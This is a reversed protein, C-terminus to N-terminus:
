RHEVADPPTDAPRPPRRALAVVFRPNNALYRRWLRRPELVLRFAWELGSRQIWRPAQPVLGANIDFAAGVGIVAHTRLRDIHSAMWREQKPTGLGVWLIDPAANNIAEVM